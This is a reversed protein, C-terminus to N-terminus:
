DLSEFLGLYYSADGAEGRFVDMEERGKESSSTHAETDTAGTTRLAPDLGADNSIMQGKEALSAVESRSRVPSNPGQASRRAM